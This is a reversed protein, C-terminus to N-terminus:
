KDIDTAFYKYFTSQPDYPALFNFSWLVNEDYVATNSFTQFRDAVIPFTSTQYFQKVKATYDYFINEFGLSLTVILLFGSIGKIILDISETLSQIILLEIYFILPISARMCFDTGYGLKFLPIIFLTVAVVKFIFNDHNKKYLLLVYIGIELLYFLILLIIGEVTLKDTMFSFSNGSVNCSFYFAFVPFITVSAAINSVSFINHLILNFKREKLLPIIWEIGFLFFFLLMGLFPLPAYPVTCLGLFAFSHVNKNLLTLLLIMWPIIAQNYVWCLLTNNSSYQYGTLANTWGEGIFISFDCKNWINLLAMGIQDLGGFGIMIACALFFQWPKNLKCVILILFFTLLLGCLTILFLAVNAAGWGGIKGIIAPIIWFQIYYVLVNGTSEYYVPWSFNILDHLVANRWNHDDTQYFYGGVGSLWCWFSILLIVTIFTKVPIELHEKATAPWNKVLYFTGILLFISMPFGIYFRIWTMFFVVIPIVIYLISTIIIARASIKFIIPRNRM